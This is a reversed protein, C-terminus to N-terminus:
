AQSRFLTLSQDTISTRFVAQAPEHLRDYLSLLTAPELTIAMNPTWSMDVDLVFMHEPPVDARHFPHGPGVVGTGFFPGWNLVARRNDSFAYQYTSRMAVVDGGQDALLSAGGLLGPSVWRAWGDLTQPPDPVRIEDLYRLGARTILTEPFKAHLAEVARSLLPRLSQEFETYAKGSMALTLTDASLSATIQSDSAIAELLEVTSPPPVQTGEVGVALGVMSRTVRQWVPLDSHISEFVTAKASPLDLHPNYSYRVEAVVMALPANPFVERTTLM